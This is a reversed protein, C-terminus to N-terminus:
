VYSSSYCIINQLQKASYSCNPCICIWRFTFPIFFDVCVIQRTEHRIGTVTQRLRCAAKSEDNIELYM